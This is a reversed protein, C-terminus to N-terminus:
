LKLLDVSIFSFLNVDAFVASVMVVMSVSKTAPKSTNVAIYPQFGPIFIKSIAVYAVAFIFTQQRISM